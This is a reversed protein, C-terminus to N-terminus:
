KPELRDVLNLLEARLSDAYLWAAEVKATFSEEDVQMFVNVLGGSPYSVQLSNRGNEDPRYNSGAFIVSIRAQVDRGHATLNAKWAKYITQKEELSLPSYDTESM